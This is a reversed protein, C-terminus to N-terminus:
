ELLTPINPWVSNGTMRCTKLGNQVLAGTFHTEQDSKIILTQGYAACLEELAAIVAKQEPHRTPYAALCGTAM